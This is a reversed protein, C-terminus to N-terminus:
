SVGFKESCEVFSDTGNATWFTEKSAVVGVAGGVSAGGVSAGDGAGTWSIRWCCRWGFCWNLFDEELM